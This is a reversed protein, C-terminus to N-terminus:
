DEFPTFSYTFLSNDWACLDSKLTIEGTIRGKKWVPQGTQAQRIKIERLPDDGIILYATVNLQKLTVQLPLEHRTHHFWRVIGSEALSGDAKKYRYIYGRTADHLEDIQEDSGIFKKWEPKSIILQKDAQIQLKLGLTKLGHTFRKMKKWLTRTIDRFVLLTWIGERQSLIPRFAKM